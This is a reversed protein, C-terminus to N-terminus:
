SLKIAKRKGEQYPLGRVNHTVLKAREEFHTGLQDYSVCSRLLLPLPNAGRPPIQVGPSPHPCLSLTTPSDRHVKDKLHVLVVAAERFLFNRIDVARSLFQADLLEEM